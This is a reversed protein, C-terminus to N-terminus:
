QNEILAKLNRGLVNIYEMMGLKELKEILSDPINNQHVGNLVYSTEEEPFVAGDDVWNISKKNMPCVNQCIMCGVLSNHWSPDLWEPFGPPRENHFTICREAHVLFRDSVIAGTPCAEM